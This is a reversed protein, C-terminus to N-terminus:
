VYIPIWRGPKGVNTPGGSVSTLSDNDPTDDEFDENAVVIVTALASTGAMAVLIAMCIWFRFGIKPGLTM